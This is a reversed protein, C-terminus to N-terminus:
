FEGQERLFALFQLMELASEARKKNDDEPFEWDTRPYELTIRGDPQRTPVCRPLNKYKFHPGKKGGNEIYGLIYGFRTPTRLLNIAPFKGESNAEKKHLCLRGNKDFMNEILDSYEPFAARVMYVAQIALEYSTPKTEKQVVPNPSDITPKEESSKEEPEQSELEPLKDPSASVLWETNGDEFQIEHLYLASNEDTEPNVYSGQYVTVRLTGRPNNSPITYEVHSKNKEINSLGLLEYLEKQFIGRKEAPLKEESGESLEMTVIEPALTTLEGLAIPHLVHKEINERVEESIVESEGHPQNEDM